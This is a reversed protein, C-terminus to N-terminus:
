RDEDGGGPLRRQGADLGVEVQLSLDIADGECRAALDGHEAREGLRRELPRDYPRELERAGASPTDAEDTAVLPQSVREPADEGCKGRGQRVGLEVPLRHCSREGAARTVRPQSM